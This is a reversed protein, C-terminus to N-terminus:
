SRPPASHRPGLSLPPLRAIGVLRLALTLLAHDLHVTAGLDHLASPPEREVRDHREAVLVSADADAEPLRVLDGVGDALRALRRLLIHELDRDRLAPRDGVHDHALEARALHQELRRRGARAHNPPPARARPPPPPPPPRRLGADGPVPTIAPAPTRATSSTAPTIFTSVLHRPVRLGCLMTFAVTSPSFRRRRGESTAAIRPRVSSSINPFRTGM